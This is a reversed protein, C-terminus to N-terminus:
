TVVNMQAPSRPDERVVREAVDNTSSRASQVADTTTTGRTAKMTAPTASGAGEMKTGPREVAEFGSM